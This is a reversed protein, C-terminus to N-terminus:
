SKAGKMGITTWSDSDIFACQAAIQVDEATVANIMKISQYIDYDDGCVAFRGGVFRMFATLKDHQLMHSGILNAKGRELQEDTVPRDTLRGQIDEILKKVQDVSKPFTGVYTHIFTNGSSYSVPYGMSAYALGRKERIERYLMSSYDDGYIAAMITLAYYEPSGYIVKVNNIQVIHAQESNRELEDMGDGISKIVRQKPNGSRFSNEWLDTILKIMKYVDFKGVMVIGINKGVYHRNYFDVLDSHSLKEVVKELGIISGSFRADGRFLQSHVHEATMGAHDDNRRHIEALVTKRETNLEAIAFKPVQVMETLLEFMKEGNQYPVTAHYATTDWDTFANVAAGLETFRNNIWETSHLATSKFMMHEIVHAIGAEKANENWAGARVFIGMAMSMCDNRPYLMLRVGNKLTLTVKNETPTFLQNLDM